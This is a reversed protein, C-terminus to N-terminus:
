RGSQSKEVTREPWDGLRIAPSGELLTLAARRFRADSGDSLLRNASLAAVTGVIITVILARASPGHSESQSERPDYAPSKMNRLKTM